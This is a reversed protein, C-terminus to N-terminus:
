GWFLRPGGGPFFFFFGGGGGGGAVGWFRRGGRGSSSGGRAAERERAAQGTPYSGCGSIRAHGGALRSGPSLGPVNAAGSRRALTRGGGRRQRGPRASGLSRARDIIRGSKSYNVYRSIASQGGGCKPFTAIQFGAVAM